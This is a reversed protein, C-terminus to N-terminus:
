ILKLILACIAMGVIAGACFGKWYRIRNYRPDNLAIEKIADHMLEKCTLMPPDSHYKCELCKGSELCFKMSDSTNM